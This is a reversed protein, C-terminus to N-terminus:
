RAAGLAALSEQAIDRVQPDTDALLPKIYTEARAQQTLSLYHCADARVRADAHRTLAGLADLHESLIANGSFQEFVAGVGLLVHMETAPDQLLLLLADFHRANRQIVRLVANLDGAKLQAAFYEAMGRVLGANGAWRELEAKSQAGSFEFEGIRVWPVSRVHYQAAMEPHLTINIAELRAIVGGKLLEALAALVAPCHPCNTGLLMVVDPPAIADNM